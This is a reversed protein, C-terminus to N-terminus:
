CAGSDPSPPGRQDGEATITSRFVQDAYTFYPFGGTGRGGMWANIPNREIMQRLGREPGIEARLHPNRAAVDLVAAALDEIGCQGPFADLNLMALVVLMKFSKVMETTELAKLFVRHQEEVQAQPPTLDGMERVLGAWGGLQSRAARPNYGEHFTESATPRAGNRERFDEYFNRLAQGPDRAVRLLGRLIDIAKLDYTVFCGEAM